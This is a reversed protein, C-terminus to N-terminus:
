VVIELMTQHIKLLADVHSFLVIYNGDSLVSLVVGTDGPHVEHWTTKGDEISVSPAKYSSWWAFKVLSGVIFV